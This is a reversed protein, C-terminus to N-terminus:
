VDPDSRLEDIRQALVDVCATIQALAQAIEDLRPTQATLTVDQLTRLAREVKRLPQTRQQQENALETLDDAVQIITKSVDTTEPPTQVLNLLEIGPPADNPEDYEALQGLVDDEDAPPAVEPAAVPEDLRDLLVQPLSEGRVLRAVEGLQDIMHDAVRRISMYGGGDRIVAFCAYLVARRHLKGLAQFQPRRERLRLEEFSQEDDDGVRHYRGEAGLWALYLDVLAMKGLLEDVDGAAMNMRRAISAQPEGLEFVGHRVHLGEDVWNYTAKTDVAMQLELETEYLDSAEADEPLVIADLQEAEGLERLAATRRNGDVIFGDYTLVLARRQEKEELDEVLNREGVMDKLLDHQAEQAEESEPDAFFDEPLEHEEIYRAQARHTRGSGLNYLPFAIPVQIRPLDIVHQRFPVDSTPAGADRAARVRDRLFAIRSASSEPM